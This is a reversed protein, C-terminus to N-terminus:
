PVVIFQNYKSILLDFTLTVAVCLVTVFRSKPCTEGYFMLLSLKFQDPYIIPPEAIQPLSSTLLDSTLTVVLGFMYHFPPSM